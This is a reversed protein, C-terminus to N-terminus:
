ESRRPLSPTGPGLALGAPRARDPAASTSATDSAGSVRAATSPPPPLPRFVRGEAKLFRTFFEFLVLRTTQISVVMTELVLIVVNGIVLVAGKLAISDSAAMLAVIASSLGAHALAFAGVRAFSLTNILLQVLREALEAIATLGAAARQAHVAHGACFLVAGALAVAWAGPAFPIALIAVYAVLFGADTTLWRLLEGRWHAEVADLLLGLLLLVAGGALPAILVALPADLPAVWLPQLAHLSFVSGFLVGFIAAALGGAVLLRAVEFRERLLFGVAAIVLGQGVDGFMYGFMLPVALALLASPDAEDRSPMGLARAFIEFPRAWWPNELLLPARAGQPTPPFHLLARAGSGDIAKALRHGSMDSTWGTIRCFLESRELARVNETVWQLRSADGLARHLEHQEHLSELAARLSAEERELAHLRPEVYALSAAATPELWGPADYARGRTAAAQQELNRLADDSGVVLGAVDGEADFRRVLAGPPLEPQADAPFVLLRKHMVPGPQGLQTFDLASGALAALVRQWVLLEYREAEVAQLRLIIPEAAPAWARICALSRQMTAVPAEPFASCRHRTQPWYARYRAALEGYEALLPQLAPELPAPASCGTRTELEVAHTAALAELALTADDRAALIEFWRAPQPRLM